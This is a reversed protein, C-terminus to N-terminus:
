NNGTAATYNSPGAQDHEKSTEITAEAHGRGNSSSERVQDVLELFTVQNKSGNFGKPAFVDAHIAVM